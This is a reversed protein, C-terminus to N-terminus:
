GFERHEVNGRALLSFGIQSAQRTPFPAASAWTNPKSQVSRPSIDGVQAAGAGPSLKDKV